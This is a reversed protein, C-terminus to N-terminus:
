PELVLGLIVILSRTELCTSLVQLAVGLVPVQGGCEPCVCALARVCMSEYMGPPFFLTCARCSSLRLWQGLDPPLGLSVSQEAQWVLLLSPCLVLKALTHCEM